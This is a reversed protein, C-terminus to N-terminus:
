PFPNQLRGIWQLRARVLPVPEYVSYVITVAISVREGVQVPNSILLPAAVRGSECWGTDFIEISGTEDEFQFLYADFKKCGGQNPLVTIATLRGQFRVRHLNYHQPDALVAGISVLDAERPELALSDTLPWCFILAYIILILPFM